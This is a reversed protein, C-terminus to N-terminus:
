AKRCSECMQNQPKKVNKTARAWPARWRLLGGLAKTPLLYVSLIKNCNMEKIKSSGLLSLSVVANIRSSSVNSRFTETKNLFRM